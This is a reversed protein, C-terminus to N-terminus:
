QGLINGDNIMIIEDGIAMKMKSVDVFKIDQASQKVNEPDLLFNRVSEWDPFVM